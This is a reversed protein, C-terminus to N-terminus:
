RREALTRDESREPHHGAKKGLSSAKQHRGASRCVRWPGKHTELLPIKTETRETKAMEARGPVNKGCASKRYERGRWWGVQKSSQFIERCNQTSFNERPLCLADKSGRDKGFPCCDTAPSWAAKRNAVLCRIKISWAISSSRVAFGLYFAYCSAEGSKTFRTNGMLWQGKSGRM